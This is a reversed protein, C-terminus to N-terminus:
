SIKLAFAPTRLASKEGVVFFPVSPFRCHMKCLIHCLVMSNGVGADFIKLAPPKPKICDFERGVHEATIAKESTTTVFQLYKKRNNFFRFPQDESKM